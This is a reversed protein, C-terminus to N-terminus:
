FSKCVWITQTVRDVSKSPCHWLYTHHRCTKLLPNEVMMVGLDSLPIVLEEASVFQLHVSIGYSVFPGRQGVAKSKDVACNPRNTPWAFVLFYNVVAVLTYM